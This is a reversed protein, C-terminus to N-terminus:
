GFGIAFVHMEGGTANPLTISAATKGAALPAEIAYVHVQLPDRENGTHNRYAATVATTDGPVPNWGLGGLVWDSFTAAFQSTSGDTYTVTATGGAGLATTNSASGLLGIKSAGAPPSLPITQGAAEINDPTGAPQDPWTYGIGDASVTGGPTVGAAALAETSYSWGSGDFNAANTDDDNSIGANTFFPWIEGPQAVVVGVTETREFGSPGSLQFTATYNGPVVNDAAKISAEATDNGYAHLDITGRAPTVTLGTGGSSAWSVHVTSGTVNFAKLKVTASTGREVVV